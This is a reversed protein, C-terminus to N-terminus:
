RCPKLPSPIQCLLLSLIGQQQRSAFFLIFDNLPCFLSFPFLSPCVRARKKLEVRKHIMNFSGSGKGKDLVFFVSRVDNVSPFNFAYERVFSYEKQEDEDLDEFADLDM